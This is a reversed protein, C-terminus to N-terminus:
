GLGTLRAIDNFVSISMMALLVIFGVKQLREMWWESVGRGTVFEWLYYLLHGGDLVPVPLLNLVGLSISILALFIAYQSLGMQASRGAYDAITIPGSLNKLSAQGMVMQGMMHLTLASVDWTQSLARGLGDLPGYRVLLMKPPVGIYAGVKGVTLDGEKEPRPTVAITLTKGARQVIWHQAGQASGQNSRRIIERLHAADSVLENEVQQVVDGPQLGAQQAAAGPALQGLQAVSFPGIIGITRMLGADIQAIELTALPLVLRGTAGTHDTYTLGLDHHELAAKTLWWQLDEFTAITISDGGDMAVANIHEGGSLGARAAISGALPRGVVAQPQEIGVWNVVSYLVVALLLNSVPGAAVIAARSRL